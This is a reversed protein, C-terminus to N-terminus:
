PYQMNNKAFYEKVTEQRKDRWSVICQEKTTSTKCAEMIGAATTGTGCKETYILDDVNFLFTGSPTYIDVTGLNPLVVQGINSKDTLCKAHIDKFGKSKAKSCSAIIVLSILILLIRKM